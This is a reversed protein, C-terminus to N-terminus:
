TPRDQPHFFPLDVRHQYRHFTWRRGEDSQCGPIPYCSTPFGTSFPLDEGNRRFHSVGTGLFRDL